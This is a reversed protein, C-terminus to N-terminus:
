VGERILFDAHGMLNGQGLAAQYVIGLGDAVAQSTAALRNWNDHGTVEAIDIV